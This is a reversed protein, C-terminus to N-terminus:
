RMGVSLLILLKSGLCVRPGGNFPVYGWAKTLEDKNLGIDEDWREPRFDEADAGFLDERRHLSYPSYAVSQGKRILVPSTRTPGGGTPLTTTKLATRQNFPVSPYLRLVALRNFSLDLSMIPNKSEKLVKTLYNMNKLKQRDISDSGAFTKEIEKKLKNLM